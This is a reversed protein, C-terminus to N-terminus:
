FSFLFWHRAVVDVDWLSTRPFSCSEIESSNSSVSRHNTAPVCRRQSIESTSQLLLSIIIIVGNKAITFLHWINVTSKCICDFRDITSMSYLPCRTIASVKERIWGLWPWVKMFFRWNLLCKWLPFNSYRVRNKLVAHFNWALNM